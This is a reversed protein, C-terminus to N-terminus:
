PDFRQVAELLTLEDSQIAIFNGFRFNSVMESYPLFCIGNPHLKGIKYGYLELLEYFKFLSLASIENM